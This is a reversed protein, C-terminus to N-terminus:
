RNYTQQILSRQKTKTEEICKANISVLICTDCMGFENIHIDEVTCKGDHQYICYNFDCIM